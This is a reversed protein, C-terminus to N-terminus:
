FVAGPLSQRGLLLLDDQLIIKLIAAALIRAVILGVRDVCRYFGDGLALVSDEKDHGGAGALGVGGKLNDPSQPLRPPLLANEKKGVTVNEDILRHHIIETGKARGHGFEARPGLGDLALVAGLDLESRRQILFAADVGCILNVQPKVLGDCPRLLALLKEPFERGAEKIQDDNVLTM